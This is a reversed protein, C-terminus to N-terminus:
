WTQEMDEKRFIHEREVFNSAAKPDFRTLKDKKLMRRFFAMPTLVLLFVVSLLLANSVRGLLLALWMWFQAIKTSLYSSFIGIGGFVFCLYLAAKWHLVVNALLCGMALVLMTEVSKEKKEM